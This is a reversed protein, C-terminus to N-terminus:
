IARIKYYYRSQDKERIVYCDAGYYDLLTRMRSPNLAARYSLVPIDPTPSARRERECVADELVNRFRQASIDTKIRLMKKKGGYEKNKTGCTTHIHPCSYVVRFDTKASSIWNQYLSKQKEYM